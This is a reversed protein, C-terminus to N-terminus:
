NSMEKNVPRYDRPKGLFLSRFYVGSCKRSCVKSKSAHSPKRYYECSCVLCKLYKGKKKKQKGHLKAHESCSLLMLNQPDNNKKNEDIHHIQEDKSVSRGLKEEMILIHEFVYGRGRARPHDPKLVEIYGSSTTRRGGKWSPHKERRYKKRSEAIKRRTEESHRKGFMPNNEGKNNIPM